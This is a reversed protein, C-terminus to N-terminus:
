LIDRSKAILRRRIGDTNSFQLNDPTGSSSTRRTRLLYTSVSLIVAIQLASGAIFTLSALSLGTQVLSSHEPQPLSVLLTLVALVLSVPYATQIGRAVAVGTILYAIWGALVSYFLSSPVIPYLQILLLVGLLISAYILIHTLTKLTKLSEHQSEM